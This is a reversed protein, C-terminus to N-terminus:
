LLSGCLVVVADGELQVRGDDKCTATLVGRRDSLQAARMPRNDSAGLLVDKFYPALSCHASGTVPDEEIGVRPGWFRSVFDEDSDDAGAACVIVGRHPGVTDSMLKQMDPTLAGIAEADDLVVMIDNNLATTGVFVASQRTVGVAECVALARAEDDMENVPAAPFDMSVRWKTADDAQTANVLLEGSWKTKFRFSYQSKEESEPSTSLMHSLATTAAVTAHGCLEVEVRGPTFWRLGYVLVEEEEEAKSKIPWVFATESHNQELAVNMMYNEDHLTEDSPLVVVSAPNGRFPVSTFADCVYIPACPAHVVRRGNRTRSHAGRLCVKLCRAGSRTRSAAPVVAPM